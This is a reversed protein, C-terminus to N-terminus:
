IFSTPDPGEDGDGDDDNDANEEERAELEEDTKGVVLLCDYINLHIYIRQLNPSITRM